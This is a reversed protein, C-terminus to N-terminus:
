EIGLKFYGHVTEIQEVFGIKKSQTVDMRRDMPLFGLVVKLMDWSSNNMQGIDRLGSNEIWETWKGQNAMLWDFGKAKPNTADPDVGKLGFYSCLRPWDDRWTSGGDEDAINFACGSTKEPYLSAYIHFRALRDQSTDTRPVNWMVEDGPFVVESGEGQIYRYLSLFIGLAQAMGMGNSRPTFGVIIEPRVECFKWNHAM